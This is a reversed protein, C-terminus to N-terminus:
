PLPRIDFFQASSGQVKDGWSNTQLIFWGRAKTLTGAAEIWPQGNFRNTNWPAGLDSSNHFGYRRGPKTSWSLEPYMTYQTGLPPIRRPDSVPTEEIVFNMLVRPLVVVTFHQTANLSPLGSDSVVAEVRNTTYADADSTSWSILGASTLTMGAPQDRLTVYLPNAPLDRDTAVATGTYTEGALITAGAIPALEPPSNSEQVIVTYKNTASLRQENRATPNFDTVVVTLTYSNPGQAETPTWTIAGSAPDITAGEPGSLLSFTLVNPPLDHDAWMPTFELQTEEVVTRALMTGLVPPQNSENVTVTFSNTMALHRENIAVPSDDTVVVAITYVNSGQAETPTWAIAGTLPNITMGSPPAILSFTLANPPLDPDTASAAVALPTQEDIVQNGPITLAPPQNSENVTVTFSNTTSLNRENVALPNDDTVVVNITYVNLGQAETPTWAIAGSLPDITMGAPPEFLSFTLANAPLDPDTASAVVALPTEENLVQDAPVTLVPPRNSENVTVTFSNTVSLNHENIATPNDDMVVVTVTYVNSGQAETPTWSIAGSAPDISMGEPPSLLSFTLVNAPLDPDSAAASVSLPTEELLVQDAPVTLEPPSNSENVIVTFSNTVSFQQENVAAPNEDTVVVNITYTNSGQAESPTWAIAGSSPDITMGEPPSSLSFTLPNAPLDPDSAAATVALPTAELLVQDMPLTLAPPRNSENVTLTFSNTVSLQQENIATPNDDTVVVTITYANSGQAETPTWAIAGSAADITMGEPPSLLSFTLANAPLDPDTASATLNLAQEELVVQNAPLTLEPPRNSENVTVTFSATASLHHENIAFPSDDTVVVTLTYSNSGQAETPTWAILGTSPDITAGEPPAVLSYTLTNAPLDPDAGTVSVLLPTEEILTQADPVALTPPRNSENVTVNFTCSTSLSKENVASENLDTVRVAVPYVGPGQAETPTWNLAGAPSVVLGPPGTILDFTLPNVPLDTDIALLNLSLPQEEVVARDGPNILMPALNIENVTVTFSNTASLRQNILALPNYDTVVTKITYTGPGQGESPTWHIVGDPAIMVGDPANELTYTMENPPCDIDSAVNTVTLATLEDLTVDPQSPLTPPANVWVVYVTGSGGAQYGTGGSTSFSGTYLSCHQYVAIRGGAGGGASYGSAVGGNGGNARIIGAGSLTGVHLNITGGSGGGGAYSNGVGASGNALISGDVQLTGTVVLRAAGGGAGGAESGYGTGGGSGADLPETLSGYATGGTGVAGQGNGGSAGYGGGGGNRASGSGGTAGKGPGSMSGYGKGSVDIASGSRVVADGAITLDVMNTVSNYVSASHTVVGSNTVTLSNFSHQGNVTLTCGKVVIDQGDYTLDGTNITTNSTFVAAIAQPAIALLLLALIMWNKIKM